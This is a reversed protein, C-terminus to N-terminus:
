CKLLQNERQVEADIYNKKQPVVFNKNKWIRHDQEAEKM